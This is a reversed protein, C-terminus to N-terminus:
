RHRARLHPHSHDLHEFGRVVVGELSINTGGVAILNRTHAPCLSGDIIGRGRLKINNGILSIIAGGGSESLATVAPGPEQRRAGRPWLDGRWRRPLRDKGFWVV